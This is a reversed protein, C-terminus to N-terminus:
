PKGVFKLEEFLIVAGIFILFTLITWKLRTQDNKIVYISLFGIYGLGFVTVLITYMSYQFYSLDYYMHMDGYLGSQKIITSYARWGYNAILPICILISIISAIKFLVKM